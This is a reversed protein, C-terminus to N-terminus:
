LVGSFSIETEFYTIFPKYAQNFGSYRQLIYWAGFGIDNGILLHSLSGDISVDDDDLGFHDYITFRLTGSFSSGNLQYNKLEIYNGWTDNIAVTLGNWRDASTDFAPKCNNLIGEISADDILGYPNGNHSKIYNIVQQKATDIYNQTSAHNIVKQTLVPNRYDSGTGDLFHNFMDLVVPYMSRDGPTFINALDKAKEKLRSLWSHNFIYVDLTEGYFQNVDYIASKSKDGILMDRATGSTPGEAKGPWREYQYIKGNVTLACAGKVTGDAAIAKIVTIGASNAQIVGTSYNVTAVSTNSSTWRVTADSPTVSYNISGAWPLAVSKSSPMSFSTIPTSDYDVRLFPKWIDQADASAFQKFPKTLDTTKLMIGHNPSGNKWARVADVINFDYWDGPANNAHGNNGNGYFVANLSM